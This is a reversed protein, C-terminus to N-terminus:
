LAQKLSSAAQPGLTLTLWGGSDGSYPDWITIYTDESDGDFYVRIHGGERTEILPLEQKNTM